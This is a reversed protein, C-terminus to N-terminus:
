TRTIPSSARATLRGLRYGVETWTLQTVQAPTLWLVAARVATPPSAVLAAPLTGFINPVAQACVDVGHLDGTLVLVTRDAADPLHALKAALRSPAGNAGFAVIPHRDRVFAAVLGRDVAGAPQVDGDRLVYSGPPRAWPYGLAHELHAPEYARRGLRAALERVYAVFGTDDLALRALLEPDSIPPWARVGAFAVGRAVGAGNGNGRRGATTPWV